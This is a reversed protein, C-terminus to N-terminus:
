NGLAKDLKAEMRLQSAKIDDIQRQYFEGFLKHDNEIAGVKANLNAVAFIILVISGAITLLTPLGRWSLFNEIYPVQPKM